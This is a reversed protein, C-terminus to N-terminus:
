VPLNTEFIDTIHIKIYRDRCGDQGRCPDLGKIASGKDPLGLQSWVCGKHQDLSGDWLDYIRAMSCLLCGGITQIVKTQFDQSHM